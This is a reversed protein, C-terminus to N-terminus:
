DDKLEEVTGSQKSLGDRINVLLGLTETLEVLTKSYKSNRFDQRALEQYTSICQLQDLIAKNIAYDEINSM